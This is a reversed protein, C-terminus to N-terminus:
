SAKELLVEMKHKESRTPDKPFDVNFKIFLHGLTNEQPNLWGKNKVRVVQGPHIRKPINIRIPGSGSNVILAGGSFAKELDITMEIHYDYGVSTGNQSHNNIYINLLLDGPRESGLDSGEGNLRIRGGHTVGAPVTIFLQRQVMVKGSGQCTDCHMWANTVSNGYCSRCLGVREFNFRKRCGHAAEEPTLYIDGMLDDGKSNIGFLDSFENEFVDWARNIFEDFTEFDYASKYQQQRRQDEYASKYPYKGTSKPQNLQADYEKKLKANSLVAYAENIEVMKDVAAKNGPNKDPHYKVALKRFSKKIQDASATKTLELIQYYNKM